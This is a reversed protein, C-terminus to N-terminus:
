SLQQSDIQHSVNRAGGKFEVDAWPYGVSVVPGVYVATDIIRWDALIAINNVNLEWEASSASQEESAQEYRLGVGIPIVPFHFVIDANYTEFSGASLDTGSLSKVRSEFGSPDAASLGAGIRVDLLGANATKGGVFFFALALVIWTAGTKM